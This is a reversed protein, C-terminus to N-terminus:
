IIKFFYKSIDDFSINLIKSIRYIEDSQFYAKDELIKKFRYIKIFSDKCFKNIKIEIKDGEYKSDIVDLLLRYDFSVNGM